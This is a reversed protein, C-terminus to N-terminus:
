DSEKIILIGKGNDSTKIKEDIKLNEMIVFKEYLYVIFFDFVDHMSWVIYM